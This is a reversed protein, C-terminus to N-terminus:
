LNVNCGTIFLICKVFRLCTMSISVGWMVNLLRYNNSCIYAIENYNCECQTFVVSGVLWWLTFVVYSVTFIYVNASFGVVAIGCDSRQMANSQVNCIAHLLMRMHSFSVRTCRLGFLGDVCWLQREREFPHRKRTRTGDDCLGRTLGLVFTGVEFHNNSMNMITFIREPRSTTLEYVLPNLNLFHRQPSSFEYKKM